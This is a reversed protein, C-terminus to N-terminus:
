EGFKINKISISNLIVNISSLIMCLEAIAPHLIGFFAAPIAIINYFFAWFLNQRIKKFIVKSIRIADPVSLLSSGTIIIDASEISLDTGTGLAIGIDAAKLAAADNIGDGVMCALINDKQKDQIAFLKEEPRVRSIVTEIGIKDAVILATKESDGTLMVPEIGLKKIEDVASKSDSKIQDAISIYGKTEGNIRFEIVTKGMDMHKSYKEVGEPREVSISNGGFTGFIGIGSKEEIDAVDIQPSINKEICYRKISEAIPHISANELALVISLSDEDLDTETIVPKGETITGTKDLFIVKIKEAKQIAEGNKILLGRKAALGSGSILAMPTALGLACPCAIVLMAIFIFVATSLAGANPNVWPIYESFFILIEKMSDYNLGWILAAFLAACFIVPVFIGTIRDSFAQIPVSSSQAEEVLKIMRSIFTDDGALTVEVKIYGQALITGGIVEDGTKRHVRDSEGTIMSEDIFGSGDIITGDLAINEGSRVVIVSGVSISEAPIKTIIDDIIISAEKPRMSLLSRIEGSASYKLRSEIYRGTLHITVLMVSLSGFSNIEIGTISLISTIWSSIAGIAVLTDMNAHSHRLAIYASKFIYRGPWFIVVAGAISEIWTFWKIHFGSMHFFMAITLPIMIALSIWTRMKASKFDKLIKENDPVTEVAKYGTSDIKKKIDAFSINQDTIVYGKETGLNVSVFYVGDMKKLAREVIRVCATCTMGEVGFTFRKENNSSNNTEM